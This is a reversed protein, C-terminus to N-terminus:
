ISASASNVTWEKTKILVAVYADVANEWEPMTNMGLQTLRYNVAAENPSVQALRQFPMTTPEVVCPLGATQVIRRVYEFRSASGRSVCNYIGRLGTRTLHLTLQAIDGVFTPNGIQSAQSVMRSSSRAEILRKWVFNKAHGPQGGFLWGTRLILFECGTERVAEEGLAKSRHHVTTPELRDEESYPTQKSRGYCGTSSFHVLLAQQRRCATALVGPLIWNARFAVDPTREAEEVDTHAACNLVVSPQAREILDLLRGPETVELEARGICILEVRSDSELASKFATGLMGGAGSLLIRM